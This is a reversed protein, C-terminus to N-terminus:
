VSLQKPKHLLFWLDYVVHTAYVATFLSIILGCMLTVGFGKVPGSGFQFLFAAALISTVHGDFIATFAKEYGEDIAAHVDRGKRLEERVRELIIVNADVAMALSLLTGAIGPMTLTAKLATM